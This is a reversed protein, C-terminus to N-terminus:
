RLTSPPSESVASAEQAKLADLERLVKEWAKPDQKTAFPANINSYYALINARLDPPVPKGNLKDLLKAYATDALRYTGPKVPEGTDFNINPLKLDGRGQAALLTRYATLTENVSNMFMKETAPTPPKFSFAKFPGIKPIVRFVWAILRARFGPREYNKGWEKQYSARSLNYVFKRKTTSPPVNGLQRKKLDWGARTIVPFISHVTFRYTGIALEEHILSSLEIGYTKAFAREMSAQAVEFGIFDHYAKAAYNGQAVQAVDFAFEVKMHSAKDDAYTIVRGFRKRLKPYIIPVATNVADRHGWNDAAYHAVSGLAFAYENLNEAESLLNMIFDGSRVYHALDSLFASGFPYYGMDQIIAGGYSYAHAKRLDEETSDPYRKLLLPVINDKWATDIIAEHTLVSYGSAEAALCLGLLPAIVLRSRM